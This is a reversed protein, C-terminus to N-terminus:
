QERALPEVRTGYRLMCLQQLGDNGRRAARDWRREQRELTEQLGSFSALPDDHEIM